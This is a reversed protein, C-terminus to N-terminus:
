AHLEDLLTKAEKLDCTDFGETFWGYIPGLLERAEDRKGQDRKLRAMSTAVRLEWSKAQQQRAVALAREFYGEAAARDQEPSLLAIEGAIRNAEAEWLREKTTQVAAITEGLCRRAEDFQGLNAYARALWMSWVPIWVTAGTSRWANIGSTIMRIANSTKGTLAFLLGQHAMGSAKWLMAGKEDALTILEDAIANAKAYDGCHLYTLPAHGLAYMLTAAQAIERADSIAKDIDSRAAEPYGLAWKALSRNSLIATRV